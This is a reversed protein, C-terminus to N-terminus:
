FQGISMPATGGSSGNNQQMKTVVTDTYKWGITGSVQMRGLLFRVNRKRKYVGGGDRQDGGDGSSTNMGVTVVWGASKVEIIRETHGTIKQVHKWYLIDDVEPLFPVKVGRKAADAFQGYALATKKLSISSVPLPIIRCAEWFCWYQGSACYPQPTVFGMLRWYKEVPGDNNNTREVIGIQSMLVTRSVEILQRPAPLLFRRQAEGTTVLTLLCVLSLLLKM